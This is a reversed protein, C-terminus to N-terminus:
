CTRRLMEELPRGAIWIRNSQSIDKACTEVSLEKEELEVEIGLPKLSSKLQEVANRVESGTAGCRECTKAGDYILRQWKIKLIKM